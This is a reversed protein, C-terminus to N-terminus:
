RTECLIHPQFPNNGLFPESKILGGGVGATNSLAIKIVYWSRSATLSQTFAGFYVATGNVAYAFTGQAESVLEADTTPDCIIVDLTGQTGGTSQACFCFLFQHYGAVLLPNSKVRAPADPIVTDNPFGLDIGNFLAVGCGDLPAYSNILGMTPQQPSVPM